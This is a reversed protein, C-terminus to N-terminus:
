PTSCVRGQRTGPVRGSVDPVTYSYYSRDRSVRMGERVYALGGAKSMMNVQKTHEGCFGQFPAAVGYGRLPVTYRAEDMGLSRSHQVPVSKWFAAVASQVVARADTCAGGCAVPRRSGSTRLLVQLPAKRDEILLGTQAEPRIDVGATTKEREAM